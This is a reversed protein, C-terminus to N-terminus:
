FRGLENVAKRLTENTTSLVKQNAEFERTTQMMAVMEDAVTVNSQELYGTYIRPNEVIEGAVDSSYYTDGESVLNQPNAFFVVQFNLVEGAVAPQNNENLVAYGEQTVYQNQDNLAFNGNRTYATQGNPLQIAFYGDSGLAFDTPRSTEELPGRESNTSAGSIENGMVLNGLDNRRNLEPGAQYNHVAVEQLTQQFLQKSQFGPTQVNAMNSSINEQRKQLLEFNRSLTDFARIM